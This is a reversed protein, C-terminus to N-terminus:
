DKLHRRVWERDIETIVWSRDPLPSMRFRTKEARPGAYTVWVDPGERAVDLRWFAALMGAPLVFDGTGSGAGASKRIEARVRAAVFPTLAQAAASRVSGQGPAEIAREAASNRGLYESAVVVSAAQSVRDVNIFREAATADHRHIAAAFRSLSYQPTGTLYYWGSLAALAVVLVPVLWRLARASV